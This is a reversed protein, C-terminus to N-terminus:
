ALCTTLMRLVLQPSHWSTSFDMLYGYKRIQAIIEYTLGTLSDFNVKSPVGVIHFKKHKAVHQFPYVLPNVGQYM